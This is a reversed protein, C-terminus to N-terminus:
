YGFLWAWFGKSEEFRNEDYNYLADDTTMERRAIDPRDYGTLPNNFYKKNESQPTPFDLIPPNNELDYRTDRNTHSSDLIPSNDNSNNRNDGETLSSDFFPAQQNERVKQSKEYLAKIREYESNYNEADKCYCLAYKQKLEELQKTEMESLDVLDKQRFVNVYSKCTSKTMNDPKWCNCKPHNTNQSCYTDISKKCKESADLVQEM